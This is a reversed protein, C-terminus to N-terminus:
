FTFESAWAQRDAAMSGAAMSGAMFSIVLARLNYNLGGIFHKRKSSKGVVSILSNRQQIVEEFCKSPEHAEQIESPAHFM